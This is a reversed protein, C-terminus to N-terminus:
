LTYSFLTSTGSNFHLPFERIINIFSPSHTIGHSSYGAFRLGNKNLFVPELLYLRHSIQQALARSFLNLFVEKGRRFGSFEIEGLECLTLNIPM